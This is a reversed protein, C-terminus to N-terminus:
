QTWGVKRIRLSITTSHESSVQPKSQSYELGIKIKLCPLSDTGDRNVIDFTNVTVKNPTLPEGNKKLVGQDISYDTTATIGTDSDIIELSLEDQNGNDTIKADDSWHIEQTLDNLILTTTDQLLSLKRATNFTKIFSSLTALLLVALVSVVATFILIEVLSFGSNARKSKPSILM